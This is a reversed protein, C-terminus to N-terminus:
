TWHCWWHCWWLILLVMVSWRIMAGIGMHAAGRLGAVRTAEGVALTARGV